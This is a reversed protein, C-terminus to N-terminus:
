FTLEMSPEEEDGDDPSPIFGLKGYLARAAENGAVYCLLIRPWRGERRLLDVIMKAGQLGHGQGQWRADIFYESLIYAGGEPWDYWLAMGIPEGDLCLYVARSRQANYAYARALIVAPAAVFRQQEEKVALRTRWNDRDIPELTLM